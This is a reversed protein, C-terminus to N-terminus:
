EIGGTTVAHLAIALHPSLGLEAMGTITELNSLSDKLFQLPTDNLLVNAQNLTATIQESLTTFQSPSADEKALLAALNNIHNGTQQLINMVNDYSPDNRGIGKTLIEHADNLAESTILLSGQLLAQPLNSNRIIGLQVAESNINAAASTFMSIVSATGELVDKLADFYARQADPPNFFLRQVDEPYVALIEKLIQEWMEDTKSPQAGGMRLLTMPRDLMPNTANNPYKWVDDPKWDTWSIDINDAQSAIGLQQHMNTTAALQDWRSPTYTSGEWLQRSADSDPPIM